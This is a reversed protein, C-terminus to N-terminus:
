ATWRHRFVPMGAFCTPRMEASVPMGGCRMRGSRNGGGVSAGALSTSRHDVIRRDQGVGADYAVPARPQWVGGGTMWDARGARSGLMGARRETARGDVEEMCALM